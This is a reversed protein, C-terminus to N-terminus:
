LIDTVKSAFTFEGATVGSRQALAFSLTQFAAADRIAPHTEPGVPAPLSRGGAVPRDSVWAIETGAAALDGALRANQDHHAPTGHDFFVVSLGPGALEIVGHRLAGASMGEAPNKAAEKLILAATQASAAAGGRGTLLLHRDAAFTGVRAVHEDLDAVYAALSDVTARLSREAGEAEGCIQAGVLEAVALTNVYSKTSVTAEAGAVLDIRTHAARGLTSQPNNTVGVVHTRDDPLRDLLAVIEASDGSQSTLWLLSGPDVLRDVVDLLQSTEIWWAAVGLRVLAAWLGFGGHHSSGMGSVIVRPRGALGVADVVPKISAWSDLLASLARPQDLVDALYPSAGLGGPEPHAPTVTV